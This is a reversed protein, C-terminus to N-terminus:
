HKIVKNDAVSFGKSEESADPRASLNQAFERSASDIGQERFYIGQENRLSNERLTRSECDNQPQNERFLPRNSSIGQM